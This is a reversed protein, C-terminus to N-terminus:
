QPPAPTPTQPAAPETQGTERKLKAAERRERKIQDYEDLQNQNLMARIKSETEAHIEKTKQRRAQPTLSADAQVADLQAKQDKHIAKFQIQQDHSLALRKALPPTVPALPRSDPSQQQPTALIVVSTSLVAFLVLFPRLQKTM